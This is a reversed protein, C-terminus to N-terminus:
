KPPSDIEAAYAARVKRMHDLDACLRELERAQEPKVGARLFSRRARMEPLGGTPAEGFLEPSEAGHMRGTLTWLTLWAESRVIHAKDEPDEDVLYDCMLALDEPGTGKACALATCVDM